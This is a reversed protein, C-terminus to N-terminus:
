MNQRKMYFDLPGEKNCRCDNKLAKQHLSLFSLSWMINERMVNLAKKRGINGEVVLFFATERQYFVESNRRHRQSIKNDTPEYQDHTGEFLDVHCSNVIKVHKPIFM